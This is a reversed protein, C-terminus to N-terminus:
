RDLTVSQNDKFAEKSINQIFDNKIKDPNDKITYGKFTVIMHGYIEEYQDM